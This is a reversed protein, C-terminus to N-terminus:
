KKARRRRPRRKKVPLTHVAPRAMPEPGMVLSFDLRKLEQSVERVRIEIPDGLRFSGGEGSIDALMRADADWRYRGRITRLPVFGEVGNPLEAYIGHETVGSITASYRDGVRDEMYSLVKRFRIEREVGEALRERVSVYPAVVRLRAVFRERHEGLTGRLAHKLVRHVMLDPYRRIPSTFHTYDALGLGFHSGWTEQYVAKTLFSLIPRLLFAQQERSHIEEVLRAVDRSSITEGAGVTYGYLGLFTRLSRVASADPTEHVRYLIPIKKARCYKTVEENALIMCEEILKHSAKRTRREIRAVAGDEGVVVMLEGFEFNIKGETVRRASLVEHLAYADRVLSPLRPDYGAMSRTGDHLEQFEEYTCRHRSEIVTEHVASGVVRAAADLTLIISLTLKPSGPTLSCLDNSLHEPLMPVVRDPFYISTSRAYAEADLVTGERVYESVDAIHVGLEFGGDALRKVHIADDFDRADAGDITVVCEGRLDLRSRESAPDYRLGEAEAHVARPFDEPIGYEVFTIQEYIRPDDRRGLIREVNATPRESSDRIHVLVVDGAQADLTNRPTITLPSAGFAGMVEVHGDTYVGVLGKKSREIIEIVKAEGYRTGRAARMPYVKVTDGAFANKRHERPIRVAEGSPTEVLAFRYNIERFTGILHHQKPM